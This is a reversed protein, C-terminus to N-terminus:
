PLTAIVTLEITNFHFYMSLKNFTIIAKSLTFLFYFYSLLIQLDILNNACAYHFCYELEFEVPLNRIMNMGKISYNLFVDLVKSHRLNM